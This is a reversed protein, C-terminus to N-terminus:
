LRQEPVVLTAFKDAEVVLLRKLEDHVDSARPITIVKTFLKAKRRYRTVSKLEGSYQPENEAAIEGQYVSFKIETERRRRAIYHIKYDIM